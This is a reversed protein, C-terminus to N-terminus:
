NPQVCCALLMDDVLRLSEAMGGSHATAGAALRELTQQSAAVASV